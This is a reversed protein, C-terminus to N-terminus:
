VAPSSLSEEMEVGLVRVVEEFTTIGQVVKEIACDRISKGKKKKILERMFLASRREVISAQIEEDFYVVEFVGTRGLYGKGNCRDCGRGKKFVKQSSFRDIVSRTYTGVMELETPQHQEKCSSCILRVLRTSIVGRVAQAIITSSIGFEQLRAVLAAVDFTHFSSFIFIGSLSAMVAMQATDIDRIEGLMVIDPDQRLVSRMARSYSLDVSENIQTQRVNSMQYEIPDELTIINKDPKNLTNIISYLLNTKGSGTPGTVIVLGSSGAILKNVLELQDPLFGLSELKILIEERNLIRLVLTEGYLSPLTSVRINYIRNNHNFEFHGDQPLRHETINMNSLVKIKSIISDQSYKNLGESEHLLGDVRFRVKFTDREPEFHIDSTRKEIASILINEFWDGSDQSYNIM